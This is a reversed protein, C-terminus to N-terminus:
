KKSIEVSYKRMRKMKGCGCRIELLFVITSITLGLILIYFAMQLHVISLEVIHNGDNIQLFQRRRSFLNADMIKDWYKTLGSERLAGLLRNIHGLYPSGYPAIYVTLYPVPCQAVEHYIQGGSSTRKKQTLYRVIHHRELYAYKTDGARTLQHMEEDSTEIVRQSLHLHTPNSLNLNHILDYLYLENSKILLGSEDLQQLTNINPLQQRLLLTSILNGLFTNTTLICFCSWIVLLVRLSSASPARPINQNMNVRLIQLFACVQSRGHESARSIKLWAYSVVFMILILAIWVTIDFSRFMNTLQSAYKSEEVLFCLDDSSFPYTNEARMYFSYTQLLRSNFSFDVEDNAIAKLTGTTTGNRFFMGPGIVDKHIVFKANMQQAATQTFFGDLGSIQEHSDYIAYVEEPYLAVHVKYQNMNKLKDTFVYKRRSINISFKDFFPNFTLTHDHGDKTSYIIVVNLIRNYWFLHFVTEVYKKFSYSIPKEFM